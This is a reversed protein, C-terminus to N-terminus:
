DKVIGFDKPDVSGGIMPNKEWLDKASKFGCRKAIGYLFDYGELEELDAYVEKVRNKWTKM